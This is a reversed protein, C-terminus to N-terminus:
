RQQKKNASAAATAAAPQAQAKGAAAAAKAAHAYKSNLPALVFDEIQEFVAAKNAEVKTKSDQNRGGAAIERVAAGFGARVEDIYGAYTFNIADINHAQDNPQHVLRDKLASSLGVAANLDKDSNFHYVDGTEPDIRRGIIRARAEEDSIALVVVRNPVISAKELALAQAPTRPFGELIWGRAKADRSQLRELVLPVMIEDPVLLGNNLYQSVRASLAPTKRIEARLLASPNIHLLNYKHSLLTSQTHKGSGKPGLIVLRVPRKPAKSPPSANFATQLQELLAPVPRTLDLFLAVSEFVQQVQAGHRVYNSAAAATAPDSGAASAAASAAAAAAPSASSGSAPTTFYLLHTPLIGGAQLALAQARTNPYGELIWGQNVADAKNLRASLLPLVISDPIDSGADLYSKAQVGLASGAGAEEAVLTSLRVRLLGLDRVVSSLVAVSSPHPPTVVLVRLQYCMRRLVSASSVDAGSSQICNSSAEGKSSAGDGNRTGTARATGATRDHIGASGEAQSDGAQADSRLVDRVCQASSVSLLLLAPDCHRTLMADHLLASCLLACLRGAGDVRLREAASRKSVKDLYDEAQDAYKEHESYAQTSM